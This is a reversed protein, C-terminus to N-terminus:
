DKATKLHWQPWLFILFIIALHSLANFFADNIFCSSLIRRDTTNACALVTGLWPTVGDGVGALWSSVGDVGFGQSAQANHDCDRLEDVADNSNLPGSSVAIWM